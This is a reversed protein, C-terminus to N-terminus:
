DYLAHDSFTGTETPKSSWEIGKPGEPGSMHAVPM